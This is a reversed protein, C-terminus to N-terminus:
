LLICYSTFKCLIRLSSKSNSIEVPNKAFEESDTDPLFKVTCQAPGILPATATVLATATISTSSASSIPREVIRGNVELKVIPTMQASRCEAACKVM